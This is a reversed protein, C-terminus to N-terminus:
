LQHKKGTPGRMTSVRNGSTDRPHRGPSIRSLIGIIEAPSKGEALHLLSLLRGADIRARRGGGKAFAELLLKGVRFYEAPVPADLDDAARVAGALLDVLAEQLAKDHLVVRALEANNRGLFALWDRLGRLEGPRTHRFKRLPQLDVDRCLSKAFHAALDFTCVPASVIHGRLEWDGEDTWREYFAEFMNNQLENHTFTFVTSGIVDDPNLWSWVNDFFDQQNKVANAIARKADDAFKAVDSQTIALDIFSHSNIMGNLVSQVSDSFARHGAEAGNDSFNDEEMLICVFGVIGSVGSTLSGLSPPPPIPSLTTNWEGIISPVLITDGEDVSIDLLNGHSGPTPVVLASGSLTLDDNLICTSGDMKFFVTWLYPEANGWGDGEDRCLIDELKITVALPALPM